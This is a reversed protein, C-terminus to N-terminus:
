SSNWHPSCEFAGGIIDQLRPSHPRHQLWHRECRRWRGLSSNLVVVVVIASQYSQHLITVGVEGDRV